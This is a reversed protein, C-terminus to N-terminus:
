ISLDSVKKVIIQYTKPHNKLIEIQGAVSGLFTDIGKQPDVEPNAAIRWGYDTFIMIGGLKLLQWALRATEEVLNAVKVRDQLIILDYNSVALSVLIDQFNGELVKVKEAAGTKTINTKFQEERQRDICTLRASPHTLINDLLWCASMGQWNGIELAQIEPQHALPQLHTEWISLRYTFHDQTFDYDRESCVQWGRLEGAKQFCKRAKIPNGKKVWADGLQTYLWPYEKGKAILDQCTAIAEDWKELRMLTQNLSHYAWPFEPDCEIAQHFQAIAEALKGQQLSVTGLKHHARAQQPDKKLLQEYIERAKQWDERETLIEALQYYSAGLNPNREIARQYLDIADEVKGQEWFTQGLKHYDQAKILEPKLRFAQAWYEAATEKQGLKAYIQALFGWATAEDPKLNLLKEYVAIARGWQQQLIYLVGLNYYVQVLNPQSELSLSQWFTSAEFWGKGQLINGIKRCVIQWESSNQGQKEIVGECTALADALYNISMM